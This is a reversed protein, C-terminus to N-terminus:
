DMPLKLHDSVRTEDEVKEAFLTTQERFKSTGRCYMYYFVRLTPTAGGRGSRRLLCPM